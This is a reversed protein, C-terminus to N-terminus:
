KEIPRTRRQREMESQLGRTERSVRCEHGSGVSTSCDMCLLNHRLSFHLGHDTNIVLSDVDQTLKDVVPACSPTNSLAESSVGKCSLVHTPTSISMSLLYPSM